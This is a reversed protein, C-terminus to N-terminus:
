GRLARRRPLVGRVAGRSRTLARGFADCCASGAGAVLRMAFLFVGCMAHTSALVSRRRACFATVDLSQTTYLCQDLKRLYKLWKM